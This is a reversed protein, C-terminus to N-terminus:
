SLSEVKTITHLRRLQILGQKRTAEDESCLCLVLHKVLAEEVIVDLDKHTSHVSVPVIAGQSEQPQSAEWFGDRSQRRIHGDNISIAETYLRSPETVELNQHPPTRLSSPPESGSAEQDNEMARRTIPFQQELRDSVAGYLIKNGGNEVSILIWQTLWLHILSTSDKDGVGDLYPLQELVAMLLPSFKQLNSGSSTSSALEDLADHYRVPAKAFRAICNDIFVYASNESPVALCVELSSLLIGVAPFGAEENLLGISDSAVNLANRLIKAGSTRFHLM